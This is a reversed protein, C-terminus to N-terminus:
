ITPCFGFKLDGSPEGAALAHTKDKLKVNRICGVYPSTAEVGKWTVGAPVGGIYLPHNTDASSAGVKGKGIPFKISDVELIALTKSKVVKIRHWQGNCIQNNQKPQSVTSIIGNGNDFSLQVVGDVIQLLMFDEKGHVAFLVGSMSRPKVEMMVKLDTGVHYKDYLKVYGDTFFTGFEAMGSCPEANFSKTQDETIKKKNAKINKLCGIFQLNMNTGQLVYWFLCKRNNKNRIYVEWRSANSTAGFRHGSASYSDAAAPVKPLACQGPPLTPPPTAPVVSTSPVTTSIDLPCINVRVGASHKATAFNFFLGNITVDEICGYFQVDPVGGPLSIDEPIGGFYLQVDTDLGTTALGVAMDVDNINLTLEQGDKVVSIYHWSGDNYNGIKSKVEPGEDRIVTIHGSSVSIALYRREDSPSQAFMQEPCGPIVKHALIRNEFGTSDTNFQLSKICGNFGFNSLNSRPMDLYDTYGGIFLKKVALMKLNGPSKELYTATGSDMSLHGEQFHRRIQVQHWKGDNYREKTAIFARGGGLDYQYVIHGDRMDISAFDQSKTDYMLLLLGNPKFTNFSLSIDFRKQVNHTAKLEFYSDGDFRYGDFTKRKILRATVGDYNNEASVFDWLGMPYDNYVYREMAGVFRTKTIDDPLTVSEPFGGVFFYTEHKRLLLVSNTGGSTGNMKIVDEGDTVVKLSGVAGIREAEIYHWEGDDIQKPHYVIGPGSGLDFRLMVRGNAVELSLYDQTQVEHKPGGIYTLLGNRAYTKVHMSVKTYSGSSDVQPPNRLRVASDSFKLGVLIQNAQSRALEIKKRLEKMDLSANHARSLAADKKDLIYQIMSTINPLLQRARDVQKLGNTVSENTDSHHLPISSMLSKDEPRISNAKILVESAKDSTEMAEMAIAHASATYNDHHLDQFQELKVQIEKNLKEVRDGLSQVSQLQSALDQTTIDYAASANMKIELSTWKSIMSNEGVGQSMDHSIQSVNLADNAAATADEISMIINKYSNAAKVSTDSASKTNVYISDLSQIERQIEESHQIAKGVNEHAEDVPEDIFSELDDFFDSLQSVKESLKTSLQKLEDDNAYIDELMIRAMSIMRSIKDVTKNITNMANASLSNNLQQLLNLASSSLEGADRSNSQLDYLKERVGDIKDRTM